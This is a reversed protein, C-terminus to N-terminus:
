RSIVTLEFSVSSLDGPSAEGGAIVHVVLKDNAADYRAIHTIAGATYGYGDAALVTVQDGLVARFFAQADASGGAPYAADGDFTVRDIFSPRLTTQGQGGLTSGTASDLAM